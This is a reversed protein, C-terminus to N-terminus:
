TSLCGVVWHSSVDSSSVLCLAMAPLQLSQGTLLTVESHLSSLTLSGSVVLILSEHKLLLTQPQRGSEASYATLSLALGTAASTSPSREHLESPSLEISFFDCVALPFGTLVKGLSAVSPSVSDQEMVSIASNAVGARKALERQSFGYLKRIMKLRQGIKEPM